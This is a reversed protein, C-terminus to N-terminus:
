WRRFRQSELFYDLLGKFFYFPLTPMGARVVMPSVEAIWPRLGITGEFFYYPLTPMGARMVM